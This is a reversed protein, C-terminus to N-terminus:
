HSLSPNALVIHKSWLYLAVSFTRRYVLTSIEILILWKWCVAEHQGLESCVTKHWLFTSQLQEISSSQSNRQSPSPDSKQSLGFATVAYM